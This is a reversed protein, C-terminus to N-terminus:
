NSVSFLIDILLVPLSLLIGAFLSTVFAIMIKDVGVIPHPASLYMDTVSMYVFLSIFIIIFSYLSYM